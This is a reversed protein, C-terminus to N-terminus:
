HPCPPNFSWPKMTFSWHSNSIRLSKKCRVTEQYNFRSSAHHLFVTMWSFLFTESALTFITRLAGQGNTIKALSLLQQRKCEAKRNRMKLIATHGEKTNTSSRTSSEETAQTASLDSSLCCSSTDPPLQALLGLKISPHCKNQFALGLSRAKHTHESLAAYFYQWKWGSPFWRPYGARQRM